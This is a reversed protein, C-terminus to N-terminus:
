GHNLSKASPHPLTHLTVFLQWPMEASTSNTPHLTPQTRGSRMLMIKISLDDFRVPLSSSRVVCLRRRPWTEPTDSRVVLPALAYRRRGARGHKNEVIKESRAGRILLLEDRGTGSSNITERAARM